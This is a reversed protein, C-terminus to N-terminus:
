ESNNILDTPFQEEKIFCRGSVELASRSRWILPSRDDLGQSLPPPPATEWFIKEARQAETQDSIFPPPSPHKLGQEQDAM